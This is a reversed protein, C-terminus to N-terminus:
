SKENFTELENHSRTSHKKSLNFTEKFAPCDFVVDMDKFAPSQDFEVDITHESIKRLATEMADMDPREGPRRQKNRYRRCRLILADNMEAFM